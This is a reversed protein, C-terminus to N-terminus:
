GRSFVVQRFFVSSESLDIRDGLKAGEEVGVWLPSIEKCRKNLSKAFSAKQLFVTANSSSYEPINIAAHAGPSITFNRGDHGYCQISLSSVTKSRDTPNRFTLSLEDYNSNQFDGMEIISVLEKQTNQVSQTEAEDSDITNHIKTLLDHAGSLNAMITLLMSLAATSLLPKIHKKIFKIM